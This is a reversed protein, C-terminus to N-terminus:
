INKKSVYSMRDAMREPMYGSMRDNKRASFNLMSESMRNPMITAMSGPM